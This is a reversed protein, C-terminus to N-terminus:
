GSFVLTSLYLKNSHALFTYSYPQCLWYGICGMIRIDLILLSMISSSCVSSHWIWIVQLLSSWKDHLTPGSPCAECWGCDTFPKLMNRTSTSIRFSTFPCHLADLHRTFFYRLFSTPQGYVQNQGSHTLKPIFTSAPPPKYVRNQHRRPYHHLPLSIRSTDISVPPLRSFVSVILFLCAISRAPTFSCFAPLFSSSCM